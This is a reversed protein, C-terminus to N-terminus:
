EKATMTGTMNAHVSCIFTYDGPDLAPVDYTKTAVGAFVEGKFVETGANDKIAVNHQVGADENDFAIQFGQNPPVIVSPTTFAIGQAM